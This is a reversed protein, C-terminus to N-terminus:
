FNVEISKDFMSHLELDMSYRDRKAFSKTVYVQSHQALGKASIVLEKCNWELGLHPKLSPQYMQNFYTRLEEYVEDPSMWLSKLIGECWNSLSITSEFLENRDIDFRTMLMRKLHDIPNGKVTWNPYSITFNFSDLKRNYVVSVRLMDNAMYSSFENGITDYRIQYDKATPPIYVLSPDLKDQFRAKGYTLFAMRVLHLDIDTLSRGLYGLRQLHVLRNTTDMASKPWPVNNGRSGKTMWFRYPNIVNHM